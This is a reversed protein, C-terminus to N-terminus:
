DNYESAVGFGASALINANIHLELSQLGISFVMNFLITIYILIYRM